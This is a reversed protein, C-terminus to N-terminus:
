DRLIKRYQGPSCGMMSRFSRIFHSQDAFGCHYAISSLSQRGDHLLVLSQEVRVKRIYVTLTCHFYHSFDRCLHGPHVGAHEALENLNLREAYRDHILERVSSVWKPRRRNPKEQSSMMGQFLHILNSTVHLDLEEGQHYSAHFVKAMRIKLELDQLAHAGQLHELSVDYQQLWRPDLEIHFGRAPADPKCNYHAEQWHHFLVSGAGCQHVEKHTGETLQGQLIYTFYPLEHYHWDVYPHVYDTETILLGEVQLSRDTHGYFIGRSLKQM